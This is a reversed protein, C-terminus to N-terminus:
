YYAVARFFNNGQFRRGSLAPDKLTDIPAMAITIPGANPGAVEAFEYFTGGELRYVKVKTDVDLSSGGTFPTQLNLVGDAPDVTVSHPLSQADLFWEDNQRIFGAALFMHAAASTGATNVNVAPPNTFVLSYTAVKEKTV